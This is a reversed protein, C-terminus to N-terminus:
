QSCPRRYKRGARARPTGTGLAQVKPRAESAVAPNSASYWDIMARVRDECLCANPKAIRVGGIMYRETTDSYRYKVTCMSNDSWLGTGLVASAV